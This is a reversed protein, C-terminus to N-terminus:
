LERFDASVLGAFIGTVANSTNEKANGNTLGASNTRATEVNMNRLKKAGSIKIM